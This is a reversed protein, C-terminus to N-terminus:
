SDAPCVAPDLLSSRSPNEGGHVAPSRSVCSGGHFEWSQAARRPERRAVTIQTPPGLPAHGRPLRGSPSRPITRDVVCINIPEQNCGAASHPSLHWPYQADTLCGSAEARGRSRASRRGGRELLGRSKAQHRMEFWALDITARMPVTPECLDLHQCGPPSKLRRIALRRPVASM